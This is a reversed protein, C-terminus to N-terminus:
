LVKLAEKRNMIDYQSTILPKEQRKRLMKGERMEKDSWEGRRSFEFFGFRSSTLPVIHSWLEWNVVKYLNNEPVADTLWFFIYSIIFGDSVKRGSFTFANLIGYQNSEWGCSSVSLEYLCSVKCYQITIMHYGFPAGAFTPTAELMLPKIIM